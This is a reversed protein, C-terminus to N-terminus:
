CYSDQGHRNFCSCCYEFNNPNAIGAADITLGSYHNGDASQFRPLTQECDDLTVKRYLSCCGQNRSGFLNSSFLVFYTISKECLCATYMYMSVVHAHIFHKILKQVGLEILSIISLLVDLCYAYLTCNCISECGIYVSVHLYMICVNVCGPM